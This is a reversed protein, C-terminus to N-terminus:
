SVELPKPPRFCARFFGFSRYSGELVDDPLFELLHLRREAHSYAALVRRAISIGYKCKRDGPRVVAYTVAAITIVSRPLVDAFDSQPYRM